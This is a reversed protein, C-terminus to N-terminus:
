AISVRPAAQVIPSPNEAKEIQEEMLKIAQVLGDHEYMMHDIESQAVRADARRLEKRASVEEPSMDSTIRLLALDAAAKRQILRSHIKEAVLDAVDKQTQLHRKAQDIQAQRQDPSPQQNVALVPRRRPLKYPM